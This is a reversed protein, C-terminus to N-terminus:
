EYEKEIHKKLNNLANIFAHESKVIQGHYHLWPSYELAQDPREGTIYILIPVKYESAYVIQMLTDINQNSLVAIVLDSKLIQDKEIEIIEKLRSGQITGYYDDFNDKACWIVNGEIDLIKKIRKLIKQDDNTRFATALFINM